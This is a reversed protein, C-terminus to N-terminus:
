GGGDGVADGAEGGGGGGEEGGAGGGGSDDAAVTVGNYSSAGDGDTTTLSASIPQLLVGFTIWLTHFLIINTSTIIVLTQIRRM